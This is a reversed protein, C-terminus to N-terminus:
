GFKWAKGRETNFRRLRGAFMVLIMIVKGEDSWRGVFGYSADKCSSDPQLLRKCSYGYSFGVNGYGSIVEFVISFVNFNLPDASIAKRESICILMIFIVLYALESFILNKWIIRTKSKEKEASAPQEDGNVPLFSFYSPLYMMVVFLVSIAPSITSIDVVSEGAHRSNVTQFLSAALKQYSSMGQLAQSNWELSCFLVMQVAIFGFVTLVMYISEVYTYLHKYGVARPHRLIFGFEERASTKHLVWISLRLLPPFLTNGALIQPVVLLLLASNKNFIAMNENAPTFGCNVFSSVATFISFLPIQIGKSKVVDRADQVLCLYLSTIACSIIIGATLYGAMVYGLMTLASYKLDKRGAIQIESWTVASISTKTDKKDNINTSTPPSEIDMIVLEVSKKTSDEKESRKLRAKKFQLCLISTFIEGGVAMLLILVCLQRSSLHEMEVTAMSSVTLSSVATFFLDLDEPRSTADDRPNLVKLALFGLVSVLIFYVLQVIFANSYFLIFELCRGLYDTASRAFSSLKTSISALLRRFNKGVIWFVDSRAFKAFSPLKRSISAQTHQFNGMSISLTNMMNM